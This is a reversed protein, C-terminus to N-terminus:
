PLTEVLLQAGVIKMKDHLTEATEQPTLPIEQTAFMPGTDMGEDMQMITVGTKQFGHLIATQIPSAGRLFPLLSGHVNVFGYKPIQLLEKPIIKGYAVVVAIDPQLKQQVEQLFDAGEKKSIRLTKPQYVPITHQQAIKKIPSAALAQGRGKPKDPQTVCGIISYNNNILYELCPVSFEPTGFFLIRTKHQLTSM